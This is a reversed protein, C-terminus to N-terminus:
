LHFLKLHQSKVTSLSNFALIVGPDTVGPALKVNKCVSLKPTTFQTGNDASLIWPPSSPSIILFTPPIQINTGLIKFLLKGSGNSTFSIVARTEILVSF